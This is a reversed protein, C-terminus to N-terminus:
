GSGIRPTSPTLGAAEEANIGVRAPIPRGTLSLSSLTATRMRLGPVSPWGALLDHSMLRITPNSIGLATTSARRVLEVGYAQM